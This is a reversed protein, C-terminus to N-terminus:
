RKELVRRHLVRNRQLFPKRRKNDPDSVEYLKLRKIPGLGEIDVMEVEDVVLDTMTYGDTLDEIKISKMFHLWSLLSITDGAEVDFDYMLAEVGNGYAWVKQAEVDERLLGVLSRKEPDNPYYKWLKKYTVGGIISDGEIKEVHTTYREINDGVYDWPCVVNWSYGEDVIPTYAMANTAIVIILLLVLKRM